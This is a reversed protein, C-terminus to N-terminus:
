KRRRTYFAVGILGTGLMILTSAEPVLEVDIKQVAYEYQGRNASIDGTFWLSATNVGVDITLEGNSGGMFEEADFTIWSGGEDYSYLGRETYGWEIFLDAISIKNVKVLSSFSIQLQEDWEIEDDEWDKIIGLGDIDDQWLRAGSTFAELRVKLGSLDGSTYTYDFSQKNVPIDWLSSDTFDIMSGSSFTSTLFVLTTSFLIILLKKM